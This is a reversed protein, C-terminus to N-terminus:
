NKYYFLSRILDIIFTEFNHMLSENPIAVLSTPLGVSTANKVANIVAMKNGKGRMLDNYSEESSDLSIQLSNVGLEALSKAIDYNLLVGNTVLSVYLKCRKAEKIADLINSYLLPEGGSFGISRGGLERFPILINENLKKIDLDGPVLTDVYCGKCSLNCKQTTVITIHTLPLNMENATSRNNLSGVMAEM